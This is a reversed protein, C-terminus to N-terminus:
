EECGEVKPMFEKFCVFGVCQVPETETKRQGRSHRRLFIPLRV